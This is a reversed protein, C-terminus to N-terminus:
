EFLKKEVLKRDLFESGDGADKAKQWYELARATDGMKFLIDGYHELVTGSKDSGNSFSKEIWTKADELKNQKYMIWGYTDEYSAQKPELANSERSMEEAKDLREGRVSLYYAYNNLVNADKPNIALAKEYSEDSKPYNKLENYSDGLSTYFQAELIKNDVVMKVGTSLVTIADSFNKKQINAVGNMFYVIPQDPFLSIGEQSDKLLSDYKQMQAELLLLQSYVAFEKSGLDKAKYYEDLAENYKTAKNLFDGYVAHAHPESPHSEILLRCMELAQDQLEPHITILTFYSSLISIKTDIDLSKNSFAKKLEEVSKDKEGNSRYFDALSLHIYPNDPDVQLIMNYTELAKAKDGMGQYVEALMGYSQADKPDSAILKKLEEIAKEHKGMREYLRAKQMTVEKTVGSQMELKDYVKIADAPKEAFLLASAWEFYFDTHDPYDAVLKELVAAAEDFKKNKQLIDSYSLAYWSNKRDLFYASKSFFLADAYKKEGAYINAVEYMAAANSPDRRIVESFLSAANDTNGLIKEKSADFFLNAVDTKQADSLKSTNQVSSKASKEQSKCASAIVAILVLYKLVNKM